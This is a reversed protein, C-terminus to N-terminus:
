AKMCHDPFAGHLNVNEPTFTADETEGLIAGSCIQRWLVSRPACELRYVHSLTFGLDAHIGVFTQIVDLLVPKVQCIGVNADSVLKDQAKLEACARINAFEAKPPGSM